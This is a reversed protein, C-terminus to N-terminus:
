DEIIEITVPVTGRAKNDVLDMFAKRSLDIDRAKVFPGRDNVKVIVFRGTTESTVKLMTGFPLKKHAATYKDNNFIEGSATKRGDFKTHYYSAHANKKHLKLTNFEQTKEISDIVQIANNKELLADPIIKKDRTTTTKTKEKQKPQGVTFATFILGSLLLFASLLIKHKM